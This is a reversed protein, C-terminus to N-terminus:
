NFPSVFYALGLSLIIAIVSWLADILRFEDPLEYALKPNRWYRNALLFPVATVIGAAFIKWSWAHLALNIGCRIAIFGLGALLLVLKEKALLLAVIAIAACRVALGESGPSFLSGSALITYLVFPWFLALDRLYNIERSFLRRKQKGRGPQPADGFALASTTHTEKRETM